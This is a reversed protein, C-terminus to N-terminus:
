RNYPRENIWNFGRNVLLFDEKGRVKFQVELTDSAWIGNMLLSKGPDLQYDFQHKNLTDQRSYITMTQAVTDSELNYHKFKNDMHQIHTRGSWQVLLRQWRTTDTTLPPLTDGNLVFQDVEYLGYLPPNPANDGWQKTREIGSDISSYLIYGIFLTKIAIRFWKWDGSWVPYSEDKPVVPQNNFFNWIRKFDPSLVYVGMLLLHTSYLKVPIDFCFNMMVINVLVMISIIAGLSTTRRFLMLGALLEATGTFYNYAKSYGMFTWALGMPSSDGYTGLLRFFHPSPFQTKFVKAFGYGMLSIALAYRVYVWLWHNLKIYNIRKRDLLSWLLSGLLAFIFMAFVLVYDYTRDGSGNFETGITGEIGLITNGIWPIIADWFQQFLNSVVEFLPISNLPFPFLYLLFYLCLFRFGFKASTSWSTSQALPSLEMLNPTEWM